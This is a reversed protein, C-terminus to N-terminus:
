YLDCKQKALGRERAKGRSQYGPQNQFTQLRIMTKSPHHTAQFLHQFEFFVRAVTLLGGCTPWRCLM